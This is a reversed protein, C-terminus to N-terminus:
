ATIVSMDSINLTGRYLVHPIGRQLFPREGREARDRYYRETRRPVEGYASLAEISFPEYLRKRRLSHGERMIVACAPDLLSADIVFYGVPSTTHGARVLAAEIKAPHVPSFFHVESWLCGGLPPIRSRIVKERGRYKKRARKWLERDLEKLKSLPVLRSGLLQLPKRHYLFAM